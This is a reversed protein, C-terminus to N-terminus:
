VIRRWGRPDVVGSMGAEVNEGSSRIMFKTEQAGTEQYGWHQVWRIWSDHGLSVVRGGMLRGVLSALRGLTRCHCRRCTGAADRGGAPHVM